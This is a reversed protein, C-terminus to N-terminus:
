SSDRAAVVNLPEVEDGVYAPGGPPLDSEPKPLPIEREPDPQVRQLQEGVEDLSEYDRERIRALEAAAEGGREQRRAYAILEEKSAPLTVGVLLAEIEARNM